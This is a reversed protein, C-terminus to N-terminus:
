TELTPLPITITMVNQPVTRKSPDLTGLRPLRLKPLPPSYDPTIGLGGYGIIPSTNNETEGRNEPTFAAGASIKESTVDTLETVLDWPSLEGKTSINHTRVAYILKIAQQLLLMYKKDM